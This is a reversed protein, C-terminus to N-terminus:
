WSPFRRNGGDEVILRGVVKQDKTGEVCTSAATGNERGMLASLWRAEMQVMTKSRRDTSTITKLPANRTGKYVAKFVLGGEDEEQVEGVVDSRLVIEKRACDGKGAQLWVNDFWDPSATRGHRTFEGVTCLMRHERVLAM